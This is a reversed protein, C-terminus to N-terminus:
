RCLGMCFFDTCKRKVLRSKIRTRSAHLRGTVEGSLRAAAKGLGALSVELGVRSGVEVGVGVAVRVGVVVGVLVAVGVRVGVSCGIFM